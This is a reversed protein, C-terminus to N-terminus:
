LVVCSDVKASADGGAAILGETDLSEIQCPVNLEMEEEPLRRMWGAEANSGSGRGFGTM